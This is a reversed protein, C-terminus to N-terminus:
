VNALGEASMGAFEGFLARTQAIDWDLERAPGRGKDDLLIEKLALLEADPMAGGEGPIM